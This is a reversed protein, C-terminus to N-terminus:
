GCFVWIIQTSDFKSQFNGWYEIGLPSWACLFLVRVYVTAIYGTQTEVSTLPFLECSWVHSWFKACFVQLHWHLLVPCSSSIPLFKGTSSKQNNNQKDTKNKICNDSFNEFLNLLVSLLHGYFSRESGRSTVPVHASAFKESCHLVWWDEM